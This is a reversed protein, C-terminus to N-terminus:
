ERFTTTLNWLLRCLTAPDNLDPMPSDLDPEGSVLAGIDNDDYAAQARSKEMPKSPAMQCVRSALLQYRRPTMGKMSDLKSLIQRATTM